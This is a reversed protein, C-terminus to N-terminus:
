FFELRLGARIGLGSVDVEDWVPLGQITEEKNRKVKGGNYIGELVVSSRSGLNYEIGARVVWGFGNYNRKDSIDENFNKETNFLFRYAIGGGAVWFLPPQFPIRININATIPLITTSYELEKIVTREYLGSVYGTDAVESQKTYSKHFYSLGLSFDVREDFSIGYSGGFIFGANTGKPNIYGGHLELVKVGQAQVFGFAVLILIGVSWHKVKM